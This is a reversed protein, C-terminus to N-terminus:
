TEPWGPVKDWADFEGPAVPHRQYGRRQGAELEALRGRELYEALAARILASRNVRQRRAARDARQLLAEDLVVQITKVIDLRSWLRNWMLASVQRHVFRAM